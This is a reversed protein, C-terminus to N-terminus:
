SRKMNKTDFEPDKMRKNPQQKIFFFHNREDTESTFQYNKPKNLQKGKKKLM